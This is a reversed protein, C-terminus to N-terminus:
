LHLGRTAAITRLKAMSNARPAADVASSAMWDNVEDAEDADWDVPKLWAVASMNPREPPADAEPLGAAGEPVVPNECSDGAVMLASSAACLWDDVAAAVDDDLADADVLGDLANCSRNECISVLPSPWIVLDSNSLARPAPPVLRACASSTKLLSSVLPSPVTLRLSNDAANLPAPM